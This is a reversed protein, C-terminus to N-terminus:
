EAYGSNITSQENTGGKYGATKQKIANMDKDTQENISDM